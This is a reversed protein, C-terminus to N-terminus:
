EQLLLCFMERASHAGIALTKEIDASASPGSICSIMGPLRGNYKTKIYQLCDKLYPFLQKTGAVVILQDIAFFDKRVPHLSSSVLVSGTIACLCECPTILTGNELYASSESTKFKELSVTLEGPIVFTNPKSQTIKQITNQLEERNECYIFHGGQEIFSEAFRLAIDEDKIKEYLTGDFGPDKLIEFSPKILAERVSKLVRDRAKIEKNM